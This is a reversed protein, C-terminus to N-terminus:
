DPYSGGYMENMMDEMTCAKGPTSLKSQDPVWPMCSIQTSPIDTYDPAQVSGTGGSTDPETPESTFKLWDCTTGTPYKQGECGMYMDNGKVIFINKTPCASEAEMSTMESRFHESDMIYHKVFTTVGQYTMSMDCQMPIGMGMLETYSKGTLDDIVDGGTDGSSGDGAGDSSGDGASGGDTQGGSTGGAGAAPAQQASFCGFIFLSVLLVAALTKIGGM